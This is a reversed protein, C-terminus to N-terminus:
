ELRTNEHFKAPVYGASKRHHIISWFIAGFVVVGIAVCIWFILMHLDYVERSIETIGQRLNLEDAVASGAALLAGAALGM